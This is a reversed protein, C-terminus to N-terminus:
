RMRKKMSAHQYLAFIGKGKSGTPFAENVLINANKLLYSAVEETGWGPFIWGPLFAGQNKPITGLM